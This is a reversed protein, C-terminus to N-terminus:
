SFYVMTVSTGGESPEAFRFRSVHPHTSLYEHIARLLAGTGRGHIIYVYPLGAAYAQDLYKDVKELADDVSLGHVELKMPVDQTVNIEVGSGGKIVSSVGRRHEMASADVKSLETKAV